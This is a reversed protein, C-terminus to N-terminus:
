DDGIKEVVDITVTAEAYQHYTDLYADASNLNEGQYPPEEIWPMGKLAPQFKVYVMYVDGNSVPGLTIVAKSDNDVFVEEDMADLIQCPMEGDMKVVVVKGGGKKPNLEAIDLVNSYDETIVLNDLDGVVTVTSVAYFQGPVINSIKNNKITAELAELPTGLSYEDCVMYDLGPLPDLPIPGDEDFDGDLDDDQAFCVDTYTWHKEVGVLPV